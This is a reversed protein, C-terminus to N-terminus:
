CQNKILVPFLICDQNATSCHVSCIYTTYPFVHRILFLVDDTRIVSLQDVRPVSLRASGVLEWKILSKRTLSARTFMTEWIRELDTRKVRRFQTECTWLRARADKQPPIHKASGCTTCYIQLQELSFDSDAAHPGHVVYYSGLKAM